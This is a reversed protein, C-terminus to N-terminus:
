ARAVDPFATIAAVAQSLLKQGEAAMKPLDDFGFRNIDRMHRSLVVLKGATLLVRGFGEHSMKMMPSAVIGTEGEIALGIATHFLEVRWVVDPDPDAIIPMARRQERTVVFDKLIEADSKGDWAGHTDQARMLRILAKMFPTALAATEAAEPSLELTDATLTDTTM